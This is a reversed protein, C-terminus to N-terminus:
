NFPYQLGSGNNYLSQVENDSLVRSWVGVEDILGTYKGQSGIGISLPMTNGTNLTRSPDTTALSGDLYTKLTHNASNYTVVIHHWKGDALKNDNAGIRVAGYWSDFMWYAPSGYYKIGFQQQNAASGLNFIGCSYAGNISSNPKIWISVSKSTNGSIGLQSATKGTTLGGSTNVFSAAKGILGSQNITVGQQVTCNNSGYSDSVTIGATEDLKWYSILDGSLTTTVTPADMFGDKNIDPDSHNMASPRIREHKSASFKYYQKGGANKIRVTWTVQPYYRKNQNLTIPWFACLYKGGYFGVKDNLSQPEVNVYSRNCSNYVEINYDDYTMFDKRNLEIKATGISEGFWLLGYERLSITLIVQIDNGDNDIDNVLFDSGSLNSPIFDFAWGSDETKGEVWFNCVVKEETPGENIIYYLNWSVRVNSAKDSVAFDSFHLTHFAATHTLPDIDCAIQEILSSDTDLYYAYLNTTDTDIGFSYIIKIPANFITGHPELHISVAEPDFPLNTSTPSLSLKIPTELELAGQPIIINFDALPSTPDSVRIEGGGAGIIGEGTNYTIYEVSPDQINERDCAIGLIGLCIMILTKLTKM